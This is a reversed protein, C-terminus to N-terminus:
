LYERHRRCILTGTNYIGGGDAQWAADATNGAIVSNIITATGASIRIGGGDCPNSSGYSRNGLVFSKSMTLVSSAGAMYIGGGGLGGPTTNSEITSGTIDVSGSAIRIGGGAAGGNTSAANNGKVTSDTLTLSTGKMYIGGAGTEDQSTNNQISTSIITASSNTNVLV